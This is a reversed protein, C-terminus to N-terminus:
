RFQTKIEISRAGETPGFSFLLEDTLKLQGLDAKEPWEVFVYGNEHNSKEFAEWYGIEILSGPDKLELRYFDFHEVPPNTGYIQHVVFSPSVVRPMKGKQRNVLEAVVAKVWTTKGVGLPGRLGFIGGKPYLNLFWSASAPLDQLNLIQFTVM